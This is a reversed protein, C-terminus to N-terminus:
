RVFHGFATCNRLDMNSCNKRAVGGGRTTLKLRGGLAKRPLRWPHLRRQGGGPGKRASSTAQTAHPKPRAPSRRRGSVARSAARSTSGATSDAREGERAAMARAPWSTAPAARSPRRRQRPPRRRPTQRPGQFALGCLLTLSNIAHKCM